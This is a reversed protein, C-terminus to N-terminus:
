LKPTDLATADHNASISTTQPRPNGFTTAPLLGISFTAEIGRPSFRLDDGNVLNIGLSPLLALATETVMVPSHPIRVMSEFKETTDETRDASVLGFLPYKNAITCKPYPIAYIIQDLGDSVALVFHGLNNVQIV